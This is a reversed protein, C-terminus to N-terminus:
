NRNRIIQRIRRETLRCQEALEKETSGSKYKAIIYEDRLQRDFTSAKPVRFLEGSCLWILQLTKERGVVSEIKKMKEYSM